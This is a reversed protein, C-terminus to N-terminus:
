AFRGAVSGLPDPGFRNDGDTGRMCFWVLLIITGIVPILGLLLWWGTRDLDHLRRIGVAIGPVILALLVVFGLISGLTESAQGVISVAINVLCNFLFYWWYEPRASRGQFDAYREVLATRVADTFGM